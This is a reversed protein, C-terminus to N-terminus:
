ISYLVFSACLLALVSSQLFAYDFASSYYITTIMSGKEM